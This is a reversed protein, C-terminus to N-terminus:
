TPLCAVLYIRPTTSTRNFNELTVTAKAALAEDGKDLANQKQEYAAGMEDDVEAKTYGQGFSINALSLMLVFVILVNKM